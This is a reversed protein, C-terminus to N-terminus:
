ARRLRFFNSSKQAMTLFGGRTQGLDEVLPPPNKVNYARIAINCSLDNIVVLVGDKTQFQPIHKWPNPLRLSTKRLAAFDYNYSKPM